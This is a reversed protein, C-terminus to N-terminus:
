KGMRPYPIMNEERRDQNGIYSSLLLDVYRAGADPRFLL